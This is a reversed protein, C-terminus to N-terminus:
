NAKRRNNQISKREIITRRLHEDLMEVWPKHRDSTNIAQTSQKHLDSPEIGEVSPKSRDRRYSRDFGKAACDTGGSVQHALKLNPQNSESNSRNCAIALSQWRDSQRKIAAADEKKVESSNGLNDNIKM